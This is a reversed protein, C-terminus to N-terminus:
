IPASSTGAPRAVRGPLRVASGAALSVLRYLRWRRRSYSGARPSQTWARRAAGSPFTLQASCVPGEGSLNGGRPNGGLLSRSNAPIVRGVAKSRSLRAMPVHLIMALIRGRALQLKTGTVARDIVCVDATSENWRDLASKTAPALARRGYGHRAM